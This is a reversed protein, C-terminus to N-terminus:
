ALIYHVQSIRHWCIRQAGTFHYLTCFFACLNTFDPHSIWTPSAPHIQWVRIAPPLYDPYSYPYCRVPLCWCPRNGAIKLIQQLCSIIQPCAPHIQHVRTAQSCCDSSSYLSAVLLLAQKQWNESTTLSFFFKLHM